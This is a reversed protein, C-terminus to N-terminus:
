LLNQYKIGEQKAIIQLALRKSMYRVMALNGGHFWFNEFGSRRWISKFEGEKDFGWVPNLQSGIEEGVIKKATEKMNTYGTALVVIDLGDIKSGDKLIVGNETFEQIEGHSVKVKNEIILTSCGVDIYYGSGRRYYLGFLGTGGMGANTEFGQKKLGTLLKGDLKSSKRYQQRMIANTLWIPNGHLLVDATDIQPGEADFVGECNTRVGDDSSIVCTSSRQLMTVEKIGQEYFDQCIDHSSNCAGVVLAKKGQYNAGSTHQSSHVIEGKFKSEGPFHPINPEGSHGTCFILHNPFIKKVDNTSNNVVSVEWKKTDSNFGAKTVSTNLWINLELMKAYCELFNAFQDKSPYIPFTDSHIYPLRHYYFPDHLSLFKYRKRWNDGINLNSEVILVNYGFSKLRAAITISSQGGGVLLALPQHDGQYNTEDSRQELWTKRQINEGHKTGTPRNRGIQEPIGDFEDLLTFVSLIKLGIPADDNSEVSVLKISGRGIGFNSKYKLYLQIWQIPPTHEDGEHVTTLSIGTPYRYDAQKDFQFEGIKDINKPVNAKIENPNIFTRLDDTLSLHDKWGTHPLLFKDLQNPDKAIQSLTQNFEVLWGQALSNVDHHKLNQPDPKFPGYIHEQPIDKDYATELYDPTIEEVGPFVSM